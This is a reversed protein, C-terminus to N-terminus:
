LLGAGGTVRQNGVPNPIVYWTTFVAYFDIPAMEDVNGIFALTTCPDAMPGTPKMM